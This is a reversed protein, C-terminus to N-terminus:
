DRKLLDSLKDTVIKALERKSMIDYNEVGSKDIISVINTDVGFGAGARSIDNCVIFDFNKKRLKAKSNEIINETEVSFGVKVIDLDLEGVSKAIDPNRVMSINMGGDSKKIKHRAKNEPRYDAVAATFVAADVSDIQKMVEDYMDLASVVSILKVKEDAKITTLGSILTVDAGRSNLENAISYGMKGTSPNSLYRVPDLHERTAGATVLVKKGALDNTKVLEDKVFRVIDDVDALKGSGLDGCALRGSASSIFLFGRKKLIEINETTAANELMATNMAPAIVVKKRTALVTTSLIDDAIGNAFKAIINASAPAILFLDAKKALAIHNIEYIIKEFTDVVVPRQSLTEFSLPSVFETANRTMVVDVSANLKKLRSVIDLAKYAAISGTVGLVINKGSLM